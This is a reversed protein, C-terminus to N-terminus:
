KSIIRNVTRKSSVLTIVIIEMKYTELLYPYNENTLGNQKGKRWTM